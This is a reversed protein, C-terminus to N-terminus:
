WRRRYIGVSVLGGISLLLLLFGTLFLWQGTAASHLFSWPDQGQEAEQAAPSGALATMSPQSGADPARLAGTGPDLGLDLGLNPAARATPDPEASYLAGHGPSGTDTGNTARPGPSDQTDPGTAAPNPVAPDVGARPPPDTTPQGVPHPAPEGTAPIAASPAPTSPRPPAPTPSSRPLGPVIAPDSTTVAPPLDPALGAPNHISPQTSGALTGGAHATPILLAPLILSATITSCVAAALVAAWRARSRRGAPAAPTTSRVSHPRVHVM